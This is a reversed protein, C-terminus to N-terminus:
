VYRLPNPIGQSHIERVGLDYGCVADLPNLIWIVTDVNNVSEGTGDRTWHSAHMWNKFGRHATRIVGEIATVVSLLKVMELLDRYAPEPRARIRIMIM